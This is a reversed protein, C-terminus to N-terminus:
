IRRSRKMLIYAVVILVVVIILIIPLLMEIGYTSFGQSEVLFTEYITTGQQSTDDARVPNMSVKITVEDQHYGFGKPPKVVLYATSKSGKAEELTVQSTVIANWGEPVTEEIVDLYVITRANGMNEIEIPFEATDMPGIKMSKGSPLNPDILPKYSPVFNLNFTQDYSDILGLKEVSARIKIFGLGYAPADEAVQFSVITKGYHIEESIPMPITDTQLTATVWPSHEVIELKIFANKGTYAAIVGRGFVGRTVVYSVEIGVPRIAGRPVVPEATENGSWSVGIVSQLNFILGASTVPILSAFISGLLVIMVISAKTRKFNKTM